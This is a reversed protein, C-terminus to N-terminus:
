PEIVKTRQARSIALNKEGKKTRELLLKYLSSNNKNYVNTKRRIKLPSKTKKEIMLTSCM